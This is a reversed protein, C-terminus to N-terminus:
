NWGQEGRRGGAVKADGDGKLLYAITGAVAGSIVYTLPNKHIPEKYWATKQAHEVAAYKEDHIKMLEGGIPNIENTIYNVASKIISNYEKYQESDKDYEIELNELMNRMSTIEPINEPIIFFGNKYALSDEEPKYKGDELIQRLNIASYDIRRNLSRTNDGHLINISDALADEPNSIGLYKRVIGISPNTNEIIQEVRKESINKTDPLGEREALIKAPLFTLVASLYIPLIRKM